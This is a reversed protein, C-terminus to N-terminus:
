NRGKYAVIDLQVPHFVREDGDGDIGTSTANSKWYVHWGEEGADKVPEFAGQFGTYKFDFGSNSVTIFTWQDTSCEYGEPCAEEEEVNEESPESARITTM